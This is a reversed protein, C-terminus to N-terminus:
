KAPGFRKRLQQLEAQEAPTLGGGNDGQQFLPNSASFQSLEDYFGEDFKGTQKRYDRALKAVEKERQALKKRTDILIKNGEPTKALNPVMNTLFERDRDSLAGPMGAGGSPNRMELAIENSLAQAAQQYPLKPDVKFGLSEGAAKLEMISPTLKGTQGSKALLNELRSLKNITGSAMADSKMLDAYDGGQQKGLAKNFESEQRTDVTVKPRGAARIQSQVKVYEPNMWDPPKAFNGENPKLANMDVPVGNPAFQMQPKPFARDIAKDPAVQFLQALQPNQSMLGQIAAQQQAQQEGQRKMQDMQMQRLEREQKEQERKDRSGMGQQYGMLGGMLGHSLDAGLNKNRGPAGQLLHAAAMMLGLKRPDDPDFNFM